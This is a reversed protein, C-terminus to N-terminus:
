PHPITHDIGDDRAEPRDNLAEMMCGLMQEIDSPKLLVGSKRMWAQIGARLPQLTPDDIQIEEGCTPCGVTRESYQYELPRGYTRVVKMEIEVIEIDQDDRGDVLRKRATFFDVSPPEVGISGDGYVRAFRTPRVPANTM